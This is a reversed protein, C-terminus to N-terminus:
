PQEQKWTWGSTETISQQLIDESQTALNPSGAFLGILPDDDLAKDDLAQIQLYSLVAETIISETTQGRKQALQALRELLNPEPIWQVQLNAMYEEEVHL